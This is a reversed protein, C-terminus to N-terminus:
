SFYNVKAAAGSPIIAKILIGLDKIGEETMYTKGKVNLGLGTGEVEDMPIDISFIERKMALNDHTQDEPQFHTM